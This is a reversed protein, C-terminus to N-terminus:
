KKGRKGPIFGVWDESNKEPYAKKIAYELCDPLKGHNGKGIISYINTAYWWYLMLRRPKIKDDKFESYPKHILHCDEAIIELKREGVPIEDCICRGIFNVGFKRCLRNEFTCKPPPQMLLDIVNISTLEKM